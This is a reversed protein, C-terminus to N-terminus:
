KRKQRMWHRASHKTDEDMDSKNVIWSLYDYPLDPWPTGKHKGFSVPGQHLSPNNTIQVMEELTPHETNILNTLLAATVYADPGAHHAPECLAPDVPLDRWYRLVQNTHRPALPWFHRALKLTCIKQRDGIDGLFMEDFKINHAAFYDVDPYKLQEMISSEDWGFKCCIEQSIHHIALAEVSSPPADRNYHQTYYADHKAEKGNFIIDSWGAQVIRADPGDSTTEFDFVRIIKQM